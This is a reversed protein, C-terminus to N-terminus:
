KYKDQSEYSASPCVTCVFCLFSEWKHTYTYTLKPTEAQGEAKKSAMEYNEEKKTLSEAQPVRSHSVIQPSSSPQQPEPQLEGYGSDDLARSLARSSETPPSSPTAM